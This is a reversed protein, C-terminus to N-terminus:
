THGLKMQISYNHDNLGGSIPNPLVTYTRGDSYKTRNTGNNQYHVTHNAANTSYAIWNATTTLQFETLSEWGYDAAMGLSGTDAVYRASPVGGSDTYATLRINGAAVNIRIAVRDYYDNITGVTDLKSTLINYGGAGINWTGTEGSNTILDPGNVKGAFRFPNMIMPQAGSVKPIIKDEHKFYLDHNLIGSEDYYKNQYNRFGNTSGKVRHEMEEITHLNDNLFKNDVKNSYEKLNKPLPQYSTMPISGIKDTHIPMCKEIMKSFIGFEEKDLPNM